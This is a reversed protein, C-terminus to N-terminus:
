GRDRPSPSTYLLCDKIIPFVHNKIDNILQHVGSHKNEAEGPENAILADVGIAMAIDLAEGRLSEVLHQVMQPFREDSVTALKLKTKFVWFAFDRAGGYYYVFGERTMEPVDRGSPRYALSKVAASM